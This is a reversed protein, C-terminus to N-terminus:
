SSRPEASTRLMLHVVCSRTSFIWFDAIKWHTWIGPTDDLQEIVNREIQRAWEQRDLSKKSKSVSLGQAVNDAVGGERGTGPGDGLELEGLHM